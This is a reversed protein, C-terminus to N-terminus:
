DASELYLNFGLSDKTFITDREFFFKGGEFVHLAKNMYMYGIDFRAHVIFTNCKKCKPFVTWILSPFIDHRDFNLGFTISDVLIERRPEELRFPKQKVLGEFSVTKQIISVKAPTGQSPYVDYGPGKDNVIYTFRDLTDRGESVVVLAINGIRLTSDYLEESIYFWNPDIELNVRQSLSLDSIVRWNGFFTQDDSNGLYGGDLILIFSSDDNLYIRTGFINEGGNSPVYKGAQLPETQGTVVPAPFINFMLMINLIKFINKM